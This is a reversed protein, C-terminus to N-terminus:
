VRSPPLSFAEFQCNNLRLEQLPRGHLSKTFAKLQDATVETFPSSQDHEEHEPNSSSPDVAAPQTPSIEQVASSFLVGSADESADDKDGISEQPKQVPESAEIMDVMLSQIVVMTECHKLAGLLLDLHPLIPEASGSSLSVLSV